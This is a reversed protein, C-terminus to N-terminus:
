PWSNERIWVQAPQRTPRLAQDGFEMRGFSDRAGVGIEFVVLVPLTIAGLVGWSWLAVFPLGRLFEPPNKLQFSFFLPLSMWLTVVPLYRELVRSM